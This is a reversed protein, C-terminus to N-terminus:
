HFDRLWDICDRPNELGSHQLPYGNGERPHRGLGLISGSDGANCASEEGASGGPFGLSIRLLYAFVCLKGGGESSQGDLKWCIRMYNFNLHNKLFFSSLPVLVQCIPIYSIPSPCSWRIKSSVTARSERYTYIHLALLVLFICNM